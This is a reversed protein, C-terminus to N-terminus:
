LVHSPFGYLFCFWFFSTLLLCPVLPWPAPPGAALVPAQLSVSPSQLPEVCLGLLQPCAQSCRVCLAGEQFGPCLSAGVAELSSSVFPVLRFTLFVPNRAGDGLRAGVARNQRLWQLVHAGWSSPDLPLWCCAGRSSLSPVGLVVAACSACPAWFWCLPCLQVTGSAGVASLLNRHGAM